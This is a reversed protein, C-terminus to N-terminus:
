RVNLRINSVSWDINTAAKGQVRISINNSAVALNADLGADTEFDTVTEQWLITAVGAVCKILGSVRFSAGSAGSAYYAQIECAVRYNYSDMLAQQAITTVVNDTTSIQRNPNDFTGSNGLIKPGIAMEQVALIAVNVPYPKTFGKISNGVFTHRRGTSVKLDALWVFWPSGVVPSTLLDGIGVVSNGTVTLGESNVEFVSADTGEDTVLPNFSAWTIATTGYTGGAASTCKWHTNLNVSGGTVVYRAGPVERDWGDYTEDAQIEDMGAYRTWAGAQMRYVGNQAPASQDKVLTIMNAAGAVTDITQIGSLTINATTAVACRMNAKGYDVVFDNGTFAMDLM